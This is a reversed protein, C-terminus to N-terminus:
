IRLVFTDAHWYAVLNVLLSLAFAITAGAPRAIVFGIAVFLVALTALLVATTAMSIILVHSKLKPLPSVFSRAYLKYIVEICLNIVFVYKLKTLFKYSFLFSVM